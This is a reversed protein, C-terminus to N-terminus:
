DYLKDGLTYKLDVKKFNLDSKLTVSKMLLDQLKMESQLLEVYTAQGLSYSKLTIERSNQAYKITRSDLIKLENEIRNIDTEIQKINRNKNNKYNILKHTASYKRNLAMEKNAFKAGSTPIPFSISASVFDGRDDINSRKTYGVSFTIDPVYNLNSATLKYESAKLNSKLSLEKLDVKEKNSKKLISWPVSKFDFKTEKGFLYSLNTYQKEIEYKKNDLSSEMQAHRIKIDLLGQQSIKGTAYLKKSVKITKNLWVLNESLIRKEDNLKEISILVKWFKSILAQEQDRKDYDLSKAEEKISNELNGYKTTLSIKQSVGFEIGTMPSEDDKLSDKPFNKASVKLIPDGWSGAGESKSNLSRVKYDLSKLYDHKQIQKIAESYTFAYSDTILLILTSSLLLKIM